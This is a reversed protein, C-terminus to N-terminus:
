AEATEKPPVTILGYPEDLEKPNLRERTRKWDKPSLELYRDRPWYPMVRMVDTLYQEPHYDIFLHEQDALTAFFHGKRCPQSAGDSRRIPQILIGTADTSLCFATSLADKRMSEVIAWFTAGADELYRSMTGRDLSLGQLRFRKEQRYFPVGMALKAVLSHSIMSDALMGRRFLQKPLPTVIFQPKPQSADSSSETKPPDIKYV